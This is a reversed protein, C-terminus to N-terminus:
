RGRHPGSRARRTVPARASERQEGAAAHFPDRDAQDVGIHVTAMLAAEAIQHALLEAVQRARDRTLHGRQRPLVGAGRRRHDVGDHPRLVALVRLPQVLAEASEPETTLEVEGVARSAEEGGVVRHLAGVPQDDAPRRCARHAAGVEATVDVVAVQDAGVYAAGRAVDADDDVALRPHVGRELELVVEEDVRQRGVDHRETRSAAADHRDRGVPSTCTPGSEAPAM